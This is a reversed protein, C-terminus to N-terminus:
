SRDNTQLFQVVEQVSKFVPLCASETCLHLGKEPYTPLNPFHAEKRIVLNFTNLVRLEELSLDVDTLTLEFNPVLNEVLLLGWNSYGSAYREMGDYVNALMQKASKTWEPNQFYHGMMWFNHAMISNSAPIVNDNLEMKRAILQSDSSTFYCMKSEANQFDRVVITTLDHALQIWQEELTAQYLRIMAQIVAAYDELFGNVSPSGNTNVHWLKGTDNRQENAIWVGIKRARILYEEEGFALYADLLGVMLLANWSTLSKKDVGPAVRNNRVSLLQANVRELKEYFSSLALGKEKAFQEPSQKCLLIYKGEEWYGRENVNYYDLVWSEERGVAALVEEPTWCYFKGEEGESDADMASYYAGNEAQMERSLWDVTQRVLHQYHPTKFTAFAISYLSLLQANDYLMKEFHPVKWLMDVSYRAFGGGIQDYIGGFAMKNLTLRVHATTKEDKFLQSYRLLFVYNNPLPFKPARADGGEMRDFSRSWRVVMEHLKEESFDLIAQPVDILDSQVIGDQLRVAYEEVRSFDKELTTVLSKLVSLWQERPFYTGGYIPRGDPLTFCNLPWGGKETMLQVATMYVQDVDPREERDVKINIFHANMFAAVEENEFSEHEMVHCWHCASYGISVLVPRNLRRALEWTEESWPYWDVPNHAHQQLYLSSEHILANTHTM